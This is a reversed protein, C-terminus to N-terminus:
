WYSEKDRSYINFYKLDINCFWLRRLSCVAFPNPILSQRKMLEYSLAEREDYNQNFYPNRKKKKKKGLEVSFKSPSRRDCKEKECKLQRSWHYFGM